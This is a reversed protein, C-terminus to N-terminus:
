ATVRESIKLSLPSIYDVNGSTTQVKADLIYNDAVLGASQASTIEFHWAATTGGVSAVFRSSIVLVVPDSDPPVFKGNKAKKLACSVTETGDYEPDLARLGFTITEGRIHHLEAIAVSM